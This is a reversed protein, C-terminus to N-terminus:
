APPTPHTAKWAAGEALYTDANAQLRAVIEATTPIDGTEAQHDKIIQTILPALVGVLQLMLAQM